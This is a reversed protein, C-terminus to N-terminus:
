LVGVAADGGDLIGISSDSKELRAGDNFVEDLGIVLLVLHGIVLARLLVQALGPKVELCRTLTRLMVREDDAREERLENREVKVAEASFDKKKECSRVPSLQSPELVEVWFLIDGGGDVAVGVFDLTSGLDDVLLQLLVAGAPENPVLAGIGVKGKKAPVQQKGEDHTVINLADKIACRVKLLPVICHHGTRSNGLDDLVPRLHYGLMSLNPFFNDPM